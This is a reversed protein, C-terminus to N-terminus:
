FIAGLILNAPTFWDKILIYSVVYVNTPKSFLLGHWKQVHKNKSQVTDLSIM